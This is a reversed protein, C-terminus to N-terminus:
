SVVMRHAEPLAMHPAAATSPVSGTSLAFGYLVAIATEVTTSKPVVEM